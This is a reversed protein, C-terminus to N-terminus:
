EKILNIRYCRNEILNECERWGSLYKEFSKDENNKEAEPLYWIKYREETSQIANAPVSDVKEFSHFSFTHFPTLVQEDELWKVEAFFTYERRDHVAVIDGQKLETGKRDHITLQFKM